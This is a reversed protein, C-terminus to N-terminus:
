FYFYKLFNLSEVFIHHAQLKVTTIKYINNAIIFIYHIYIIRLIINPTLKYNNIINIKDYDKILTSDIYKTVKIM